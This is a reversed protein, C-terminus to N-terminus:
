EKKSRSVPYFEGKYDKPREEKAAAPADLAETELQRVPVAPTPDPPAATAGGTLNRRIEADVAAVSTKKRGPEEYHGFRELDYLEEKPRPVYGRNIMFRIMLPWLGGILLVSGGGWVVLVYRKDRWWAYSYELSENEKQMAAMYDLFPMEQGRKVEGRRRAVKYQGDALFVYPHYIISEDIGALDVRREFSVLYRGDDTPYVVVDRIRPEDSWSRAILREFDSQDVSRRLPFERMIDSSLQTWSLLLGVVIGILVWQWTKMASLNM